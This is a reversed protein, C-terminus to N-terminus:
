ASAGGTPAPAADSRGLLARLAPELEPWLFRYGTREAVRPVVRQSGLLATAFEGLAVRLAFGPAPLFAPRGLVAALTRTFDRNTVPSPAVANMPGAIAAGEERAAHLLLGVLDDVHIWPMWQRGDGLRGGLGLKFPTLMRALAGGTAGLVVGIRPNVVRVGFASAHASEAEWARCVGALFDDGAAAQEDLIQDGRAGYFGVASASVLVRPRGAGDPRAGIAAVLNRTGRVRSERIREKRAATWRHGVSEGALHFIAEVGELAAGPPPGEEPEWGHAEVDGLLRAAAEPDRSLVVPRSSIRDGSESPPDHMPARGAAGRALEGVLRRGIFGTAGTILARMTARRQARLALCSAPAAGGRSTAELAIHEVGIM